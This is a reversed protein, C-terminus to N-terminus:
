RHTSKRHRELRTDLLFRQFHNNRECFTDPHLSYFRSNPRLVSLSRGTQLNHGVSRRQGDGKPNGHIFIHIIFPDYEIFSGTEDGFDWEYKVIPPNGTGNWGLTSSSANFTTTGDLGRYYTFNATPGYFESVTVPKSTTCWLGESDTVNLTVLYTGSQDYSHFVIKGSGFENDGFDWAYSVIEDDEGEPTSASADFTITGYVWPEPPRYTFSAQPPYSASKVEFAESEQKQTQEVLASCYVIHTGIKPEPSLRFECEYTGDAGTAGSGSGYGGVGGSDGSGRAITFTATKEPCLPYGGQLPRKTYVSAYITATGTTAWADVPVSMPFSYVGELLPKRSGSGSGICVSNNDYITFTVTVGDLLTTLTEITVNVHAWREEPIPPLPAPIPIYFTGIPNGYQDTLSVNKINVNTTPPTGITVTRFALAKALPDDVEIALIADSVPTGSNELTGYITVNERLYYFEKKTNVTLIIPDAANVLQSVYFSFTPM